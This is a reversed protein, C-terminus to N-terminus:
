LFNLQDEESRHAYEIFNQQIQRKKADLAGLVKNKMAEEVNVRELYDM